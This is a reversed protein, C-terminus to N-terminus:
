KMLTNDQITKLIEEQISHIMDHIEGYFYHDGIDMRHIYKDKFANTINEKVHKCNNCTEYYVVNFRKIHDDTVKKMNIKSLRYIPINQDKFYNDHILLIYTKNM